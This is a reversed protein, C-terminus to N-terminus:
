TLNWALMSCATRGTPSDGPTTRRYILGGGHVAPRTNPAPRSPVSLADYIRYGQDSAAQMQRSRYANAVTSAGGM